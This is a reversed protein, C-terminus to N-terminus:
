QFIMVSVFLCINITFVRFGTDLVVVLFNFNILISILIFVVISSLGGLKLHMLPGYQKAWKALTQHPMAGIQHMNGLIPVKPPGPPLKVNSKRVKPRWFLYVVM